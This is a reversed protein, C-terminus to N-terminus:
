RVRDLFRALVTRTIQANPGGWVADYGHNGFPLEQVTVDAGRARGVDALTRSQQVPVIQDHDGHLLLTPPVGARIHTVPSAAAWAAPDQEPTSRLFTQLDADPVVEPNRWGDAADLPVLDTPPYFAVVGAPRLPRGPCSPTFREPAYATDLVLQAGASAGVLTVRTPDVGLEGSRAGVWSLACAVDRPQQDWGAGPALRYDIDVVVAGRDALWADWRPNQGRSGADWAGGHVLVVAPRAAAPTTPNWVDLELDRGDIRAYVATSSPGRPASFATGDLYRGWDIAVGAAAAARASAVAPVVGAVLVALGLVAATLAPAGPGRRRLLATVAVVAVVLGGGAAPVLSQEAAATAVQWLLSTPGPLYILASLVLLVALLVVM